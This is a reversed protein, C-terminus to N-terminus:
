MEVERAICMEIGTNACDTGERHSTARATWMQPESPANVCQVGCIRLGGAGAKPLNRIQDQPWPIPRTAALISFGKDSPHNASSLSHM